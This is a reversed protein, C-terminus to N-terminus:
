LLLESHVDLLWKKSRRFSNTTESNDHNPQLDLKLSKMSWIFFQNDERTERIYHRNHIQYRYNM